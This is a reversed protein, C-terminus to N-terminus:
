GFLKEVTMRIESLIKINMKLNIKLYFHPPGFIKTAQQLDSFYVTFIYPSYDAEGSRDELAKEM